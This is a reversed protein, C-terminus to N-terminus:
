KAGPVMKKFKDMLFQDIGRNYYVYILFLIWLVITLICMFKLLREAGMDNAKYFVIVLTLPWLFFLNVFVLAFLEKLFYVTVNFWSATFATYGRTLEDYFFWIYFLFILTAAIKWYLELKPRFCIFVIGFGWLLIFMFISKILIANDM